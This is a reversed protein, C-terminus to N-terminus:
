SISNLLTESFKGEFLQRNNKIKEVPWEWWKLALLKEITNSDFRYKIIQAPSGAVIAYPPVDKNVVSNAAVVAGHGITVGSLIISQAGIWVDSGVIIPGKSVIEKGWEENFVHHLIFHTTLREQDHFYNQFLTGKAISCFGGIEINNIRAHYETGPGNLITYRGIKIDGDLLVEYMKVGEAVSVNGYLKSSYLRASNDIISHNEAITNILSAPQNIVPPSQKNLSLLKKLFMWM